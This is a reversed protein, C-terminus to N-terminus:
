VQSSRQKETERCEGVTWDGGSSNYPSTGWWRSGRLGTVGGTAGDSQRRTSPCRPRWRIPQRGEQSGEQSDAGTRRGEGMEWRGPVYWGHRSNQPWADASAPALRQQELLLARPPLGRRGFLLLHHEPELRQQELARNGPAALALALALVVLLRHHQPGVVRQGLQAGAAAALEGRHPPPVVAPETAVHEAALAREPEVHLARGLHAPNRARVPGPLRDLVRHHDLLVLVHPDATETVARQLRDM